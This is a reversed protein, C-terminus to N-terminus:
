EGAARRRAAAKCFTRLKDIVTKEVAWPWRQGNPPLAKCEGNLMRTERGLAGLLTKLCRYAINVQESGWESRRNIM